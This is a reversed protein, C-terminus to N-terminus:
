GATFPRPKRREPILYKKIFYQLGFFVVSNRGTRSSRATWNSWIQATRKDYQIVHGVKYFDIYFIPNM